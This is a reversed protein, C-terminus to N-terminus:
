RKKTKWREWNDALELFYIRKKNTITKLNEISYPIKHETKEKKITQKRNGRNIRSNWYSIRRKTINEWTKKKLPTVNIKLKIKTKKRQKTNGEKM